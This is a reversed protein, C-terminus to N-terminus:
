RCAARRLRDVVGAWEPADPPPEIAIWDLGDRDLEHLRAYIQRAYEGAGTPMAISRVGQRPTGLHLWAGSGASPLSDTGRLLLLPTRPSYHRPHMGPSPHAGEARDRTEVPGIVSEIEERTVMGPRLLRPRPRLRWSPRSSAWVRPDPTSFWPSASRGATGVHDAATPSLEQVPEREPRGGARGGRPHASRRRPAAPTRLGVTPLGATVIDPIVPDKSVVLTLPGPGSARRWPKPRTPGSVPSPHAGHRRRGRARDAPQTRPRQKAEYIRAVAEPDLASSPFTTRAM